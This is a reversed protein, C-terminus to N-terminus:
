LLQIKRNGFMERKISIEHRHLVSALSDQKQESTRLQEVPKLDLSEFSPASDCTIIPCLCFLSDILGWQGIGVCKSMIIIFLKATSQCENILYHLNHPRLKYYNHGMVESLIM